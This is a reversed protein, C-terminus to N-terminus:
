KNNLRGNTFSYLHRILFLSPPLPFGQRCQLSLARRAGEKGERRERGGQRMHLRYAHVRAGEIFSLSISLPSLSFFLSSLPLPNSRSEWAGREETGERRGREGGPRRGEVRSSSRLLGREREQLACVVSSTQEVSFFLALVREGDVGSERMEEGEGRGRCRRLLGHGANRERVRNMARMHVDPLTQCFLFAFARM